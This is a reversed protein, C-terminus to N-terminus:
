AANALVGARAAAVVDAMPERPRDRYADFVHLYHQTTMTPSHGMRRAVEALDVGERVLLSAFGHRLDYPRAGAPAHPKFSRRRWNAYTWHDWPAGDDDPFVLAGSASTRWEDLDSALTAILPVTRREGTKTRDIEGRRNAQVIRLAGDRVHEWTLALAEEPRLGAYAMVSVLTADRLGHPTRRSLLKARLAETDEPSM